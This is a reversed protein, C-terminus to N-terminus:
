GFKWKWLKREISYAINAAQFTLAFNFVFRPSCGCANPKTKVVLFPPFHAWSKIGNLNAEDTTECALEVDNEKEEVRWRQNKSDGKNRVWISCEMQIYGIWPPMWRHHKGDEKPCKQNAQRETDCVTSPTFLYKRFISLQIDLICLHLGM